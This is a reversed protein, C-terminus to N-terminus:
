KKYSFGTAAVQEPTKGEKDKIEPDAGAALLLTIADNRGESYAYHLATWGQADTANVPAKHKLLVELLEPTGIASARQLPTIQRIDKAGPNAGRELLFRVAHPHDNSVALFVPTQKNNTLPDVKPNFPLLPTTWPSGLAAAIHLATFGAEDAQDIDFKSEPLKAVKLIETIVDLDQTESLAWLLPTRGDADAKSLLAPNAELAKRVGIADKNQILKHLDEFASM